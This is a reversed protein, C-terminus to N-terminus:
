ITVFLMSVFTGGWPKPRPHCWPRNALFTDTQALCNVAYNLDWWRNDNVASLQVSLSSMCITEPSLFPRPFLMSFLPTYLHLDYVGGSGCRELSLSCQVQPLSDREGRRQSCSFMVFASMTALPCALAASLQCCSSLLSSHTCSPSVEQLFHSPGM